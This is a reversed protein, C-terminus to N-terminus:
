KPYFTALISRFAGQNADICTQDACVIFQFWYGECITSYGIWARQKDDARTYISEVWVLGGTRHLGVHLPTYGADSLSKSTAQVTDEDPTGTAADARRASMKAVPSSTPGDVFELTWPSQAPVPTWSAPPSLAFTHTSDEVRSGLELPSSVTSASSSSVSVTTIEGLSVSSASQRRGQSQNPQPQVSGPGVSAPQSTPNSPPSIAAVIGCGAIIVGCLAVQLYLPLPIRSVPVVRTGAFWDAVTRREPRAFLVVWVDLCLSVFRVVERVLSQRYTAPRGTANDVLRLGRSGRLFGRGSRWSNRLPVVLAFIVWYVLGLALDQHPEPIKQELGGAFCAIAVLCVLLWCLGNAVFGDFFWAWERDNRFQRPECNITIVSGCHSCQPDGSQGSPPHGPDPTSTLKGCTWCTADRVTNAQLSQPAATASARQDATNTRSGADESSTPAQAATPPPTSVVPQARPISSPSSTPKIAFEHGCGPCRIETPVFVEPVSMQTGCEPCFRMEPQPGQKPKAIGAQPPGETTPTQIRGSTTRIVVGCGPCCWQGSGPPPEVLDAGCKACYKRHTAEKYMALNPPPASLFQNLGLALAWSEVAWKALDETVGLNEELRKTLQAQLVRAPLSGNWSKLDAPIREKVAGTLVAIERKCTGCYDRLLGEVRRPEAALERGHRGVLDVLSRRAEDSM